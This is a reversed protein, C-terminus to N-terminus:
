DKLLEQAAAAIRSASDIQTIDHRDIVVATCGFAEAQRRYAAMDWELETPGRQGLRNVDIIATLNGLRYYAAKDLAEWVSGEAMESDGCLVRVQYPLKDLRRGGATGRDGERRQRHDRRDAPTCSSRTESLKAKCTIGSFRRGSTPASKEEAALVIWGDFGQGRLAEAAKAGALGGGIIVFMDSAPM